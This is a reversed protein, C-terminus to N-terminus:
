RADHIIYTIVGWLVCTEQDKDFPVRLVKFSGDQVVLALDKFGPTLSRDIILVDKDLITFDKWANGKVRVFFTADKHISLEENLDIPAEMYHTAASPFGTQKSVEAQHRDKAVKVKGSVEIEM